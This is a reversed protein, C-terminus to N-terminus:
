FRYTARGYVGRQVGTAGAFERHRKELLNHALLSLELGFDSRWGFRTDLNFYNSTPEPNEVASGLSDVYRSMLDLEFGAPLDFHSRLGVQNHPSAREFRETGNIDLSDSDRHLSLYLYTYTGVLTAWPVPMWTVAAEAGHAHGELRNTNFVAAEDMAPSFEVEFTVLSQYENYFGALDFNLEPTAAWRTGLEYSILKEAVLDRGGVLNLNLGGDGTTQASLDREIRTPVRVARSIAGWLTVTDIPLWAIRGTPQIEFGSFDNHELKTGITIQVTDDFLRIRDQLLASFLHDQSRAPDLNIGSRGVFNDAMLRYEAGFLLDQNGPLAVGREIQVDFTDLSDAFTPDDRYNRDYYAQLQLYSLEGLVRRWRGLINGGSLDVELPPAPPTIGTLTLAPRIQG